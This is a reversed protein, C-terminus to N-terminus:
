IGGHQEAEALRQLTQVFQRRKEIQRRERDPMEAETIQPVILEAEDHLPGIGNASSPRFRPHISPTTESLRSREPDSSMHTAGSVSRHDKELSRLLESCFGRSLPLAGATEALVTGKRDLLTMDCIGSHELWSIANLYGEWLSDHCGNDLLSANLVGESRRRRLFDQRSEDPSVALAIIRITYGSEQLWTVLGEAAAEGEFTCALVLHRSDEVARDLLESALEAADGRLGELAEFERNSLLVPRAPHLSELESPDILVFSDEESLTTRLSEIVVSKGASPQGTVVIAWPNDAASNSGVYRASALLRWSDLLQDELDSPRPEIM